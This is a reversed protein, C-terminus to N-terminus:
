PMLHLSFIGESQQFHPTCHTIAENENHPAKSCVRRVTNCILLFHAALYLRFEQSEKLPLAAHQSDFVVQAALGAWCRALSRCQHKIICTINISCLRRLLWNVPVMGGSSPFRILRSSRERVFFWSVPFMGTSIPLRALRSTSLRLLLWKSPFMGPLKVLRVISFM